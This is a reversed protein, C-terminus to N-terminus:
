QRFYTCSTSTLRKPPRFRDLFHTSLNVSRGSMAKSTKRPRLVVVCCGISYLLVSGAIKRGYRIVLCDATFYEFQGNRCRNCAICPM